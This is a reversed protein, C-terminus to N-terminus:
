STSFRSMPGNLYKILEKTKNIEDIRKQSELVSDFFYEYERRKLIDNYLKEIYLKYKIFKELWKEIYILDKEFKEFQEKTDKIFKM